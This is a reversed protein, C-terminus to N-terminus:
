SRYAFQNTAEESVSGLSTEHCTDSLDFRFEIEVIIERKAGPIGSQHERAEPDKGVPSATEFIPRGPDFGLEKGIVVIDRGPRDVLQEVQEILVVEDDPVLDGTFPIDLNPGEFFVLMAM